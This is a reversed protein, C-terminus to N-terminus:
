PMGILNSIREIHEKSTATKFNLNNSVEKFSEMLDSGTFANFMTIYKSFATNKKEEMWNEYYPQINTASLCWSPINAPVQDPYFWKIFEDPYTKYIEPFNAFTFILGDLKLTYGPKNSNITRLKFEM